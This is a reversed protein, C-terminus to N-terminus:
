FGNNEIWFILFHKKRARKALFFIYSCILVHLFMYSIKLDLFCEKRELIDFFFIREPRKQQYLVSSSFSSKKLFVM